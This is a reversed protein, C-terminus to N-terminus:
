SQESDDCMNQYRINKVDRDYNIDTLFKSIKQDEGDMDKDSFTITLEYMARTLAVYYLRREENNHLEEEINHNKECTVNKEGYIVKGKCNPCKELKYQLYEPPVKIERERFNLPFHGHHSASVFVFPYEEGKSSHATKIEIANKIQPFKERRTNPTVDIYEKFDSIKSDLMKELFDDAINYLIRYIDNEEDQYIELKDILEILESNQNLSHDRLFDELFRSVKKEKYQINTFTKMTCPIGSGVLYKNIELRIKNTRALIVFDNFKIKRTKGDRFQFDQGIMSIIKAKFFDYENKPNCFNFIFIERGSENSTQSVDSDSNEKQLLRNSIEVIQPTSRYNNKLHIVKNKKYHKKFESFIEANAGQFSYISQNRDGVVTIHGTPTFKKVIEFQLYNNDQFEDIIVHDYKKEEEILNSGVLVNNFTDQLYDDFDIKNKEKLHNEYAAFYKSLDELRKLFDDDDIKDSRKKLYESLEELTQDERKFSSVGDSLEEITEKKTAKFIKFNFKDFDRKFKQDWDKMDDSFEYEQDNDNTKKVNFVNPHNLLQYCLSHYTRVQKDPFNVGYEKLEKDNQLREQMAKRGATTFTMCLIKQPEVGQELILDKVREAVVRTKGSGPGASVLLSKTYPYQVAATQEADLDTSTYFKRSKKKLVVKYWYGLGLM